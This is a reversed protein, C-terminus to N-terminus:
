AGHLEQMRHLVRYWLYATPGALLLSDVMDLVGGMRPILQASDKAGVRRKWGSQTVGALISAAAIAFGFGARMGVSWEAESIGLMAPVYVAAAISALVGGASGEWTKGPSVSPIMRHRGMTKGVIWGGMDSAKAVLIFWGLRRAPFDGTALERSFSLLLGVYLVPVMGFAITDLAQPRTDKLRILLLSGLALVLFAARLEFRYLAHADPAAFFGVGALLGCAIAAHTRHIRRVDSRLLLVMEVGGIAAALALFLDTPWSQGLHDHLWLVGFVFLLVLPAFIMRARVDSMPQKSSTRDADSGNSTAAM